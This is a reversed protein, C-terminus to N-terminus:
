RKLQNRILLGSLVVLELIVLLWVLLVQSLRAILAPFGLIDRLSGVRAVGRVQPNWLGLVAVAYGFGLDISLYVFFDHLLILWIPLRVTEDLLVLFFRSGLELM